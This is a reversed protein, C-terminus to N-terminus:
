CYETVPPLKRRRVQKVRQGPQRGALFSDFAAQTIRWSPRGKQGVNSASLEGSRIWNLVKDPNVGLMRAVQPTTFTTPKEQLLSLCECLVIRATPLSLFPVKVSACM